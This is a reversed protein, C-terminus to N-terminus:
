LTQLTARLQAVEDESLNTLPARVSTRPLSSRWPLTAKLLPQVAISRRVNRVQLLRAQASEVEGSHVHADYVARVRDPWTNSFASIVGAVGAALSRAVQTDSGSYIRLQPYRQVLNATHQPDGSSDKVGLIQGAHHELLHDIVATTIPVGTVQPIHYLLVRGDAPLADCLAQYYRTVGADTVSPFFFPPVVLVADAGRELAYQSLAITEPLAACGTGAFVFMGGCHQLVLDLVRKREDLSLSPGEGTTGLTLVGHIGNSELFRLHSPIWEEDVPGTESVFPTLTASIVGGLNLNTRM